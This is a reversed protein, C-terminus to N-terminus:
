KKVAKTENITENVSTNELINTAFNGFINQKINGFEEQEQLDQVEKQYNLIQDNAQNYLIIGGISAMFAISAITIPLLKLLKTDGNSTEILVPKRKEQKYALHVSYAGLIISLIATAIFFIKEIDLKVGGGSNGGAKKRRRKRVQRCPKLIKAKPPWEVAM